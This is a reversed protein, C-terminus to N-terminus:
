EFWSLIEYKGTAPFYDPSDNYMREDFRLILNYGKRSSGSAGNSTAYLKEVIMGGLINLNGAPRSTGHEVALGGKYSYMSAQVDFQTAGNDEVTIDGYSVIGLLDDSLPNTRPDDKMVISNLITTTGGSSGGSRLSAVTVRGDLTGEVFLNGKDIAIVGNPAFYSLSVTIYSGSSSTKWSVTGDSNFKLYLDGGTQIYGGASAASLINNYSTNDPMPIDVGSEFGGFFQPNKPSGTMTIGTKSTAKGLFVPSGYTKLKGQTHSPGGITDGTEWAAASASTGGYYAFKSFSSPKMTITVSQSKGGYSGVAEIQIMGGGLNTVSTSFTGGNYNVDTYSASYSPSEWIKSCVLNAAAVAIAYRQTNEYYSLSNDLAEVGVNSLNKGTFLMIASFGIVLYISSRGM